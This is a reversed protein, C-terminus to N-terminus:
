HRAWKCGLIMVIFWGLHSIQGISVKRPVFNEIDLSKEFISSYYELFLCVVITSSRPPCSKEVVFCVKIVTWNEDISKLLHTLRWSITEEDLGFM